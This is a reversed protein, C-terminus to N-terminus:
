NVGTVVGYKNITVEKQSSSDQFNITYTGNTLGSVEGSGLSFIIKDNPADTSVQVGTPMEVTFNAGLGASYTGYYLVYQNPEISLGYTSTSGRGETDGVMAKIQQSKLDAIFTNVTGSLSSSRQAGLLNITVLGALVGFISMALVLEIITFGKQFSLRHPSLHSTFLSFNLLNHKIKLILKM